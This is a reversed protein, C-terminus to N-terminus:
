KQHKWFLLKKTGSKYCLTYLIEVLIEFYYLERM